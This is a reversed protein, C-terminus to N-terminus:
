FKRNETRIKTETEVEDPLKETEETVPALTKKQLQKLNLMLM